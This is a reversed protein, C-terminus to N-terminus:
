HVMLYIHRKCVPSKVIMRELGNRYISYAEWDAKGYGAQVVSLSCEESCDPCELCNNIVTAVIKRVIGAVDNARMRYEKMIKLLYAM